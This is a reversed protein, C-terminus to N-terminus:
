KRYCIVVKETQMPFCFSVYRDFSKLNLNLLKSRPKVLLAFDSSCFCSSFASLILKDEAVLCAIDHSLSLAVCRFKFSERIKELLLCIFRM